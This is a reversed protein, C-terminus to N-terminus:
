ERYIEFDRDLEDEGILNVFVKAYAQAQEISKFREYDSVWHTRTRIWTRCIWVEKPKLSM